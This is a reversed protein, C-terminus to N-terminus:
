FWKNGIDSKLNTARTKLGSFISIVGNKAETKDNIDNLSGLSGENDSINKHLDRYFKIIDYRLKERSIRYLRSRSAEYAEMNLTLQKLYTPTLQGTADYTEKFKDIISTIETLEDAIARKIFRRERWEDVFVSVFKGVIGGFTALAAGLIIKQIDTM